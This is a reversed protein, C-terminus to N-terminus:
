WELNEEKFKLFKPNPKTLKSKPLVVIFQNNAKNKYVKL